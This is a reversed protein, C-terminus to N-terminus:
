QFKGKIRQICIGIIQVPVLIHLYPIRTETLEQIHFLKMRLTFAQLHFLGLILYFFHYNIQLTHFKYILHLM